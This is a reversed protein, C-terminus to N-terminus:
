NNLWINKNIWVVRPQSQYRHYWHIALLFAVFFCAKDYVQPACASVQPISSDVLCQYYYISHFTICKWTYLHFFSSTFKGISKIPLYTKSSSYIYIYVCVRYTQALVYLKLQDKSGSILKYYLLKIQTNNDKCFKNMICSLTRHAFALHRTGNNVHNTIVKSTSFDYHPM